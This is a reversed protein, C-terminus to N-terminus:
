EPAGVDIRVQRLHARMAIRASEVDHRSVCDLINKHHIQGRQPGGEVDFIQKRQESLLGVISNVLVLILPNQTARALAEHFQNDAVIFAEADRLNADMVAVAERMAAMEEETARAAALGAIEVELIERVEVLMNSGGVEGLKLKMVLGLSHRLAENAGDIVMTGRGPRMDVLGKQALIKLAERVATRSVQFQEALERETPLRDGSRLEGALIRQEIQVAVREFVKQSQIPTYTQKEL